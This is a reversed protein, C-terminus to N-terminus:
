DRRNGDGYVVMMREVSEKLMSSAQDFLVDKNKKSAKGDTSKKVGQKIIELEDFFVGVNKEYFTNIGEIAILADEYQATIEYILKVNDISHRRPINNFLDTLTALMLNM